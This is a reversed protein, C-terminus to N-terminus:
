ESYKNMLFFPVPQMGGAKEWAVERFGHAANLILLSFTYFFVTHLQPLVTM